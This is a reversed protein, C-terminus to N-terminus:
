PAIDLLLLTESRPGCASGGAFDTCTDGQADFAALRRGDPAVAYPAAYAADHGAGLALPARGPADQGTAPDVARIVSGLEHDWGMVVMPPQPPLTPTPSIASPTPAAPTPATAVTPAAAPMEAAPAACGVLWLMLWGVLAAKTM